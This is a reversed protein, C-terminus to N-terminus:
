CAYSQQLICPQNRYTFYQSTIPNHIRRIIYSLVNIKGLRISMYIIAIMIAAKEGEHLETHLLVLGTSYQARNVEIGFGSVDENISNLIVICDM